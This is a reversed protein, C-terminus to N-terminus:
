CNTIQLRASFECDDQSVPTPIITVTMTKHPKLKAPRPQSTKLIASRIHRRM